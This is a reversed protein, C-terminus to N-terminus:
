NFFIKKLKKKLFFFASRWTNVQFGLISHITDVGVCAIKGVNENLKGKLFVSSLILSVEFQCRWITGKRPVGVGYM